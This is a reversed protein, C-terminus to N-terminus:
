PNLYKQVFNTLAEGHLNKAVIAGSSDILYNSPITTLHLIDFVPSEDGQLHSANIWKDVGDSQMAKEWGKQSSDLAYGVIQFGQNHYKQWLPVLTTKNEKRCPACWSAWFDLLTLKSSYLKENALTDGNLLPLALNPIKDGVVFPLKNSISLLQSYIRDDGHSNKYRNCVDKILEPIREYDSNPSILRLAYVSLLFNGNANVDEMFAKKFLFLAEEKEILNYENVETTDSLYKDKLSFYKAVVESFLKNEKVDGTIMESKWLNPWQSSIVVKDDPEYLLPMFNTNKDLEVDLKNPYKEDKPQLTLLYLKQKGTMSLSEFYFTGDENISTSDVVLGMYSGLIDEFNQPEILFLKQFGSSAPIDLKGSIPYKKACATGFFIPFIFFIFLRMLSM